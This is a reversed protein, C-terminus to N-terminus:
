DLKAKKPIADCRRVYRVEANGIRNCRHEAHDKEIYCEYDYENRDTHYIAYVMTEDLRPSDEELYFCEIEGMAEIFFSKNTESGQTLDKALELLAYVVSTVRAEIPLALKISEKISKIESLEQDVEATIKEADEKDHNVHFPTNYYKLTM